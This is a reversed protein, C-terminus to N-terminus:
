LSKHRCTHKNPEGSSSNCTVTLWGQGARLSEIATDSFNIHALVSVGLVRTHPLGQM